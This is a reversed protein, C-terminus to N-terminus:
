KPKSPLTEVLVFKRRGENVTNADLFPCNLGKPSLFYKLVVTALAKQVSEPAITTALPRRRPPMQEHNGIGSGHIVLSLFRRPLWLPNGFLM